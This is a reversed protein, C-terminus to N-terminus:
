AQREKRKWTSKEGDFWKDFLFACAAEKHEHKPEWSGMVAKIHRLAKTKDIGEKAVLGDLSEIGSYFWDGFLRSGWTRGCIDYQKPIEAYVPMLHRVGAPFAAMAADIETPQEFKDM